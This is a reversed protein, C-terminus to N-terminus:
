QQPTDQEGESPSEGESEDAQEGASESEGGEGEAGGQEAEAAAEGEPEVPPVTEEEIPEEVYVDDLDTADVKRRLLYYIITTASAAYSLLYAAVIGAVIFVWIGIIFAAIKESGSMAAWNYTGWLDSFSPAAWIEDVKDADGALGQGGTWVFWKAFCHTAALALWAFLRVFLYTIVGYVLAILGYLATRWPRAYIYSFSRSIADFSDSGEVSITPYMLWVGTLLGILLFAILMGAGLALFFLVAAIIEGIFPINILMAGVSILIGVFVIIALPILPATFFSLFKSASFRLAQSMSIKEERAFHLAAIRNVAGGLLASM